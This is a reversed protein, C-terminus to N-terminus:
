SLLGVENSKAEVLDNWLDLIIGEGTSPVRRKQNERKANAMERVQQRDAKGTLRALAEREGKEKWQETLWGDRTVDIYLTEGGVAKAYKHYAGRPDTDIPPYQATPDLDLRSRLPRHPVPPLLRLPPLPIPHKTVGSTGDDPKAPETPVSTEPLAEEKGLEGEDVKDDKAKAGDVKQGLKDAAKEGAEAEAKAAREARRKEDDKKVEERTKPPPAPHVALALPPPAIVRHLSM